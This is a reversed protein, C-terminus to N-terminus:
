SLGSDGVADLAIWMRLLESSGEHIETGKADRMLREVPYDRMYGYGGYIQVAEDAVWSAAESATVKAMAVQARLGAPHIGEAPAEAEAAAAVHLILSRAQAIRIAMGALKEQIAGFDHLPRGFQEREGAYRLAHEYAAQAIGLAVAAVGLRGVSAADAAVNHGDGEEGLLAEPSLAVQDFRITVIEAASFGMTRERGMVQVGPADRPVLFASLGDGEDGTRALVLLLGCRDGNTVWAKEGSLVWGAGDGAPVARVALSDLDGGAAGEAVAFAGLLDGSALRPLWAEKQADSGYADLARTVPGNHVALGLGLSADGWALAELAMLYTPLDFGLGGHAEPVRMGLFGLEAMADFVGQPIRRERDWEEVHPRVEGRALDLALRRVELHEATLM